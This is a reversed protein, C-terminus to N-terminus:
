SNNLLRRKLVQYTISLDYFSLANSSTNEITVTNVRGLFRLSFLMQMLQKAGLSFTVTQSKTATTSGDQCDLTVIFTENAAIEVAAYFSRIVKWFHDAELGLRSIVIKRAISSLNNSYGVDREYIVPGLFSVRTSVENNFAVTASQGQYGLLTHPGSYFKQIGGKEFRLELILENDLLPIFAPGLVPQGTTWVGDSSDTFTHNSAGTVTAFRTFTTAPSSSNVASRIVYRANAAGAPFTAVPWTIVVAYATTGSSESCQSPIASALTSGYLECVAYIKYARTNTDTYSGTGNTAVATSAGIDPVTLPTNVTYGIKARNESYRVNVYQLLSQPISKIISEVEYGFPLIQTGSQMLYVNDRGVFFAGLNTRCFSRQSAFGSVKDLLQSGSTTLGDWTLVSAQKGIVLHAQPGVTSLDPSYIGLGIMPSSDVANAGKNASITNSATSGYDFIVGSESYYVQGPTYAFNGPGGALIVRDNLIEIFSTIPIMQKPTTTDKYERVLPKFCFGDTTFPTNIGNVIILQNAYNRSELFDNANQYFASFQTSPSPPTSAIIRSSTKESTNVPPVAFSRSPVPALLQYCNNPVIPLAPIVYAGYLAGSMRQCVDQNMLQSADRDGGEYGALMIHRFIGYLRTESSGLNDGSYFNAADVGGGSISSWKHLQIGLSANYPFQSIQLTGNQLSTRTVPRIRGNPVFDLSTLTTECMLLNEPTQGIFLCFFDVTVPSAAPPSTITAPMGTMKVNIANYGVPLTYAMINSSTDALTAQTLICEDPTSVNSTGDIVWPALAFYYTRGGQLLGNPTNLPLCQFLSVSTAIVEAPPIAEDGIVALYPYPSPFGVLAAAFTGNRRQLAGCLAANDSDATNFLAYVQIESVYDPPANGGTPLTFDTSTQLSFGAVVTQSIAGGPGVYRVYLDMTQASGGTTAFNTADIVPAPISAINPKYFAILKRDGFTQELFDVHVFQGVGPLANPTENLVGKLSELQSRSKPHMNQITQFENPPTTTGQDFRNIGRFDKIALTVEQKTAM